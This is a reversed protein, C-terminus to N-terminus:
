AAVTLRRRTVITGDAVVLLLMVVLGWESVTPIDSLKHTFIAECPEMPTGSDCVAGCDQELVTVAEGGFTIVVHDRPPNWQFTFKLKDANSVCVVETTRYFKIDHANDDFFGKGEVTKKIVDRQECCVVDITISVNEQNINM